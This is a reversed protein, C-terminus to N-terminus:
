DRKYEAESVKCEFCLTGEANNLPEGCKQCDGEEYFEKVEEKGGEGFMDTLEEENIIEKEM